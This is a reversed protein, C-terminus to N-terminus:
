EREGNERQSAGLVFVPRIHRCLRASFEGAAQMPLFSRPIAGMALKAYDSDIGAEGSPRDTTSFVSRRM